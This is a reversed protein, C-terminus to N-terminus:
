NVLGPKTVDILLAICNFNFDNKILEPWGFDKFIWTGVLLGSNQAKVNSSLVLFLFFPTLKKLM